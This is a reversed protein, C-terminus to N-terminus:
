DELSDERKEDILGREEDKRQEFRSGYGELDEDSIVEKARTFVENEEEDMHHEYEHKLQEFKTMWLDSSMKMVNLEEMLDDLQQHEHVSHRAADQGWTKSILKSYFTEEEAAAHSKVDEYFRKWLAGRAEVKSDQISTLLKRHTDHDDKIADYITPM